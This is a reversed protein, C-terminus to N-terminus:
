CPVVIAECSLVINTQHADWLNRKAGHVETLSQNRRSRWRHQFACCGHAHFNKLISIRQLISPLTYM